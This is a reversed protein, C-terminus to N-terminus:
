REAFAWRCMLDIRRLLKIAIPSIPVGGSATIVGGGASNSGGLSISYEALTESGVAQSSESFGLIADVGGQEYLMETEYAVAKKFEDRQLDDDNPKVRCNDYIVDSAIEALRNFEDDPIPRGGFNTYYEKDIYAM